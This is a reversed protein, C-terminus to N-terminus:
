RYAATFVPAFIFLNRYHRVVVTNGTDGSIALFFGFFHNIQVNFSLRKGPLVITAKEDKRWYESTSEIPLDKACHRLPIDSM